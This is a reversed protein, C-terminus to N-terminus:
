IAHKLKLKTCALQLWIDFNKNTDLEGGGGRVCLVRNRECPWEEVVGYVDVADLPLVRVAEEAAVGVVVVGVVAAVPRELLHGLAEPPVEGVLLSPSAEVKAEDAGGVPPRIGLFPALFCVLSSSLPPALFPERNSAPASGSPALPFRSSLLSRIRVLLSSWTLVALISISPTFAPTCSM